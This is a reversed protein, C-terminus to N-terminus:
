IDYAIKTRSRLVTLTEKARTAGVYWVRAESEPARRYESFTRRAMDPLLVVHDAEGGKSGHITSLRVRCKKPNLSEGQKLSHLVYAVDKPSARSMVEHWIGDTRLGGRTKLDGLSVMEDPPLSPLTKYGRAVGEGSALYEYVGRAEDASIREGRRLKEWNRVASLLSQPVSFRGKTEFIVGEQKLWTEVPKLVFNNRALVLIDKGSWDVRPVGTEWNVAGEADRPSWVKTRRNRVRGILNESVDQVTRPVRWSKDLVRVDGELGIFHNLAAGAWEYIAQDDDGAIVVRRCNHALKRVVRWQLLSLDQAEDVFLVNLNPSWETEAFRELMDTYDILNHHAKYERMGKQIQEVVGWDLEDDAEDFLQRLPTMKVRSLNEMFLARDGKTFGAQLTDDMSVYESIEYGLWDGFEKLKRGEFVDSNTMGLAHFCLSHLTRFYPLDRQQLSFRTCARQSAEDAAKRTFSFYGIRDPSEGRELEKEVEGLLYTTKGTGPPGLVIEM